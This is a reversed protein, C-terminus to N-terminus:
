PSGAPGLGRPRQRGDPLRLGDPLDPGRRGAVRRRGDRCGSPGRDHGRLGAGRPERGRRGDSSSSVFGAYAPIYTWVASRSSMSTSGTSAWPRHRIRDGVVRRTACTRPEEPGFLRDNRAAGFSTFVLEVRVGREHADRIMREGLGPRHHAQLREPDHRDLRRPHEHGLVPRPDHPETQNVHDAITDDMEWYPVFGYVEHKPIRARRAPPLRAASAAAASRGANASPDAGSPRAASSSWPRRGRPGRHRRRRHDTTPDDPFRAHAEASGTLRGLHPDRPTAVQPAHRGRSICGASHARPVTLRGPVRGARARQDARFRRPRPRHPGASRHPRPRLCRWAHGARRRAQRSRRPRCASASGPRGDPGPAHSRGRHPRPRGPDGRHDVERHHRSRRRLARSGSIRVRDGVSFGAKGATATVDITAVTPRVYTRTRSGAAPSAQHGHPGTPLDDQAQTDGCHSSGEKPRLSSARCPRISCRTGRGRSLPRPGTRPPRSCGGTSENSM